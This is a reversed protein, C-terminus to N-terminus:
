EPPWIEIVTEERTRPNVANVSAISFKDGPQITEEAPNPEAPEITAVWAAIRERTWKHNDNLCFIRWLAKDVKGCEPCPVVKKYLWPWLDASDSTSWSNVGNVFGAGILACRSGDDGIGAKHRQGFLTTSLLIADSLKM